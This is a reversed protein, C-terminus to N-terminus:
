HPPSRITKFAYGNMPTQWGDLTIVDPNTGDSGCKPPDLSIKVGCTVLLCAWYLEILKNYADAEAPPTETLHVAGQTLLRLPMSVNVFLPGACTSTFGM